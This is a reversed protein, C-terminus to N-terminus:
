KKFNLAFVELYKKLVEIDTNNELNNFENLFVPYDVLLDQIYDKTLLHTRGEELDLVYHIKQNNEAAINAATISAGIAGFLLASNNLRDQQHVSLMPEAMFYYYNFGKKFKYYGEMLGQRTGNLYLYKSDSVLWISYQIDRQTVKLGEIKLKYAGHFKAAKKQSFKFTTEYLPKDKAYDGANRYAKGTIIDIQCVSLLPSFLCIIFYIKRITKLL